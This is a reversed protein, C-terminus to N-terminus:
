PPPDEASAENELEQRTAELERQLAAREADLQDQLQAKRADVGQQVLAELNPSTTDGASAEGTSAEGDPVEGDSAEGTSVEADTPPETDTGAAPAAAPPSPSAELPPPDSPGPTGGDTASESGGLLFFAAAALAALALLLGVLLLTKRGKSSQASADPGDPSTASSTEEKPEYSFFEEPPQYLSKMYGALDGPAPSPEISRLVEQIDEEMEGATQYREDPEKALAKFVIREIDESLSPNKERPSQIRCERVADLVGIESDGTFLKEGVLCEYLVAGLSFIDSRADVTKGWAQEPSMYQLKGKLAGMQTTSAKTVAKVIGFDCLKIEGEHSILVNQPSVDRHVLGLDRNDFDRKRHAYDLARAVAAVIMLALRPELPQGLDRSTKLITRLDKGDVFEMAIFYDGEAKGLDYIQIINNHSLQAALKAEDIFMTVFDTSDTLHSLIRKIAVIKQFGEVGRRRARWVEAMGGLAIRELLRYDGFQEGDESDHRSQPDDGRLQLVGQLADEATTDEVISPQGTSPSEDLFSTASPMPPAPLESPEEFRPSPDADGLTPAEPSSGPPAFVASFPDSRPADDFSAPFLEAPPATGQWPHTDERLPESTEASPVMPEFAPPDPLPPEAASPEFPPPPEFEPASAEPSALPPPPDLPPPPEFAPPEPTASAEFMAPAEFVSPPDLSPAPPEAVPPAAPPPEFAPSPEFAPPAEFAPPPAIPAAPPEAPPPAFAPPPEFAPPSDFAPPPAAPAAPPEVPPPAFAPPPEFAPPPVAPATPPEVPPSEFPPPPEFAPASAEIIPPDVAPLEPPPEFTPPAAPELTPATPAATPAAAPPVVPGPPAPEPMPPEAPPAEPKPSAPRTSRKRSPLELSSLTRDLLDDIEAESPIEPRARRRSRPAAAQATNAAGLDQPGGDQPTSSPPVSGSPVSGPPVSSASDPPTTPRAPKRLRDPMVGSLTEELKRDIDDSPRPRRTPTGPTPSPAAPSTAVSPATPPAPAPVAPAPMPQTAASPTPATTRPLVIPAPRTSAPSVAPKPPAAAPVTPQPAAPQPATPQPATPLVVPPQEAAAERRTAEEEVEALLDGFIEASSLQQEQPRATGTDQGHALCNQVLAKLDSDAFPKALLEDAGYDSASVLEALANAVLVIAGPGGRARSFTQLLSNADSLAASAILLRVNQTSAAQRAADPSTVSQAPWGGARLTEAIREAYSADQEAVLIVSM